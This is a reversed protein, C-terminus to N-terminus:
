GVTVQLKIAGVMVVDGDRLATAATIRRGNIYTGCASNTDQIMVQGDSAVTIECVFRSVTADFVVLDNGAARGIKVVPQRFTENIPQGQCSGTFQLRAGTSAVLHPRTNEPALAPDREVAAAFECAGCCVHTASEIETHAISKNAM